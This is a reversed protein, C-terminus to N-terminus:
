CLLYDSEQPDERFSLPVQRNKTNHPLIPGSPPIEGASEDPFHWESRINHLFIGDTRVMQKQREFIKM